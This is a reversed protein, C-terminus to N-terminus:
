GALAAETGGAGVPTEEDGPELQALFRNREAQEAYGAVDRVCVPCWHGATLVLRASGTFDHGSACRWRLPTAIDGPEVSPSLLEGGRFEAAGALLREDWQAAPVSEDYGHDLLVPTRSPRPPWFTSWDGIADWEARSGFYAAVAEENGDRLYGMTGRHKLTLPKMVLNKVIWPPTRGALALRPNQAVARALAEDLTDQRFPVLDHLRDSDSYWQGHFNRTAFWSREYWARPDGVGLAGAIRSQLQWNTLRWQEGGGIDFVGGWLEDPVGAESVNVMLRAADEVTVWEMVGGLTSHTMIPDRIELMGPHLIGTQRLWTWRPLGSDVLEKEAVVKSQGYEDFRSVRLPDGVRGWHHPPTRDGTEAVTGIGVVAIAGPDPQAKVARVINRISGVNVRHALEPHDDAFPSVVAGIHLVVDAGRVCREVAAYDTLDGFVVDLNEMDEFRRIVALDGPSPLVLAVVDFTESRERFAELVARGWNGTAGTLVVRRRTSM